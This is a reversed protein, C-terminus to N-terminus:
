LDGTLLHFKLTEILGIADIKKVKHRSFVDVIEASVVLQTTSDM